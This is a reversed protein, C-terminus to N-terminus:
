IMSLKQTRPEPAATVNITFRKNKGGHEVTVTIKGSHGKLLKVPLSLRNAGSKLSARWKLDHVDKYGQLTLNDDLQVTILANNLGRHSTLLVNVIHTQQPVVEVVAAQVAAAPAREPAGGTPYFQLTVIVALIVSAAMALAWRIHLGAASVGVKRGLVRQMIREEMGPLPKRVPIGALLEALRLERTYDRCARCESLHEALESDTESAGGPKALRRRAENCHM